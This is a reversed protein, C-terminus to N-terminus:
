YLQFVRESIKKERRRGRAVMGRRRKTKEWLKKAEWRMPREERIVNKEKANLQKEEITEQRRM